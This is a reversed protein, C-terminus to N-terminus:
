RQVNKWKGVAMDCVADMGVVLYYEYHTGDCRESDKKVLYELLDVTGVRSEPGYLSLHHEALEKEIRSVCVTCRESAECSFALECMRVRDDYDVLLHRKSSFIHAYVPLIWVEDFKGCSTLLQVIGQHGLLGTPPNASLGFLAIRKILTSM